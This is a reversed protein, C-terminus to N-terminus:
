VQIKKNREKRALDIGTQLNTNNAVFEDVGNFQRAVALRALLTFLFNNKLASFRPGIFRTPVGIVLADPDTDINLIAHWWWSPNILVDGPNLVITYRELKKVWPSEEQGGIAIKSMTHSSFGNKNLSSYVYSMQHPPLLWWKKRGAIQRFVNCGIASHIDSGQGPFGMFMHTFVKKGLVGSEELDNLFPTAVMEALEPFNTFLRSEGSIYERTKSEGLGFAEAVTCTNSDGAAGVPKCIVSENGYQDVWFSPDTWTTLAEAGLAAGRIVIPNNFNNSLESMKEITADKVDIEPLPQEELDPLRSVLFNHYSSVFTSTFSSWPTFHDLLIIGNWWFNPTYVFTLPTLIALVLLVRGLRSKSKKEAKGAPAAPKGQKGAM